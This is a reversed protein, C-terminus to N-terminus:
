NRILHDAFQLLLMKLFVTKTLFSDCVASLNAMGYRYFIEQGREIQKWDVLDPVTTVQDWLRQLKHDKAVNHQLLAFLGGEVTEGDDDAKLKIANLKELCEDALQDVHIQPRAAGRPFPPSLDM